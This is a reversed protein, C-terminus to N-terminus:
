QLIRVQQIQGNREHLAVHFWYLWVEPLKYWTGVKLRCCISSQYLNFPIMKQSTVGHRNLQTVDWIISKMVVATFVEFGENIFTLKKLWIDLWTSDFLHLGLKLLFLTRIIHCVPGVACGKPPSLYSVNISCHHLSSSQALSYSANISYHSAPFFKLVRLLVQGLAIKWMMFRVHIVRPTHTEQCSVLTSNGFRHCWMSIYPNM